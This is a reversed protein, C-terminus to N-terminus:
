FLSIFRERFHLFDSYFITIYIILCVVDLVIVFINMSPRNTKWNKKLYFLSRVFYYILFLNLLVFLVLLIM